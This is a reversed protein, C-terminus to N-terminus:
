LASARGHQQLQDVAKRWRATLEDLLLSLDHAVQSRSKGSFRLEAMLHAQDPSLVDYYSALEEAARRAKFLRATFASPSIGLERAVEPDKRRGASLSAQLAEALHAPMRALIWQLREFAHLSEDPLCPARRHQSAGRDIRDRLRREKNTEDIVVRKVCVFLEAHDEPPSWGPERRMRRWWRAYLIQLIDDADGRRGFGCAINHLTRAHRRLHANLRERPRTPM